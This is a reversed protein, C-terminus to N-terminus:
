VKFKTALGRLREASASLQTCAEAAEAAGAASEKTAASIANITGNIQDASASQQEGAAAISQILSAVEGTGQVIQKIQAGASLAREVGSKVKGAGASIQAVAQTTGVRITNISDAVEKTATTTREALKRVEDAVVAFGRGHEGARAAEIAANLALLNTQDAIDNIVEIIKGIEEGRKGLESVLSASETVVRDIENMDSVTQAVVQGGETAANGSRSAAEAAGVAKAAVESMSASMESASASASAVQRTQQEMTTVSRDASAAIQTAAAAVQEASRALETLVQRMSAIMTNGAKALQGLEDSNTADLTGTLDGAAVSEMVKLTRALPGVISRRTSIALGALAISGVAGAIMMMNKAQAMSQMAEDRSQDNFKEFKESVASNRGELETFTKMFGPFGAKAKARDETALTYMSEASTIYAELAPGIDSLAQALANDLPLKRDDALAQRFNKAHESLANHAETLEAADAANLFALVDARIADHMMDASMFNTAGTASVLLTDLKARSEDMGVWGAAGIGLAVAIGMGSLLFLRGGVSIKM